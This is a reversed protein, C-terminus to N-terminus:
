NTEIGVWRTQNDWLENVANVLSTKDTTKLQDLQGIEDLTFPILDFDAATPEGTVVKNVILTDGIGVRIGDIVGNHSVRFFYGTKANNWNTNQDLNNPDLKGMYKLGGVISDIKDNVYVTVAKSTPIKTHDAEVEDIVRETVASLNEISEVSNLDVEGKKILGKDTIFYLSNDDHPYNNDYEAQTGYRARILNGTGSGPITEWEFPAGVRSPSQVIFRTPTVLGTDPDVYHPDTIVFWGPPVSDGPNYIRLDSYNRVNAYPYIINFGSLMVRDERNMVVVINDQNVNILQTLTDLALEKTMRSERSITRPELKGFNRQLIDLTSTTLNIIRM